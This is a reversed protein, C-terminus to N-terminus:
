SCPWHRIVLPIQCAPVLLRPPPNFLSYVFSPNRSFISTYIQLGCRGTPTPSRFLIENTLASNLVTEARAFM